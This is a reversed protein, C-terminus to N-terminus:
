SGVTGLFVGLCKIITGRTAQKLADGSKHFRRLMDKCREAASLSSIEKKSQGHSELILDIASHCIGGAVCGGYALAIAPIEIGFAVPNTVTAKITAEAVMNDNRDHVWINVDFSSEAEYLTTRVIVKFPQEAVGFDDKLWEELVTEPAAM